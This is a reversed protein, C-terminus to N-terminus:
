VKAGNIIADILKQELDEPSSYAFTQSKVACCGNDVDIIVKLDKSEVTSLTSDFKLITVEDDTGFDRINYYVDDNLTQSETNCWFAAAEKDKRILWDRAEENTLEAYYKKTTM